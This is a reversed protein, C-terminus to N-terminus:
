KGPAVERMRERSMKAQELSFWEGDMGELGTLMVTVVDRSAALLSPGSSPGPRDPGVLSCVPVVVTKTRILQEYVNSQLSIVAEMSSPLVVGSAKSSFSPIM